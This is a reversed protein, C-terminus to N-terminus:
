QPRMKCPGFPHGTCRELFILPASPSFGHPSQSRASSVHFFDPPSENAPPFPSPHAGFVASSWGKSPSSPFRSVEMALLPNELFGLLTLEDGKSLKLPSDTVALIFYTYTAFWTLFTLLPTILGPCYFPFSCFLNRFVLMKSRSILPCPIIAHHDPFVGKIRSHLPAWHFFSPFNM